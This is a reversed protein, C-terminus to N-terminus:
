HFTVECYYGGAASKATAATVVTTKNLRGTLNVQIPDFDAILPRFFMVFLGLIGSPAEIYLYNM